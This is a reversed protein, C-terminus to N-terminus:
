EKKEIDRRMEHYQTQAVEGRAYREKLIELPNKGQKGSETNTKVLWIILLIFGVWFLAMWGWGFYGMHGFGYYM